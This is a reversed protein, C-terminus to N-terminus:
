RHTKLDVLESALPAADKSQVRLLREADSNDVHFLLSRDFIALGEFSSSACTRPNGPARRVSESSAKGNAYMVNTGQDHLLGAWM